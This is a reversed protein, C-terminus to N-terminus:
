NSFNRKFEDIIKIIKPKKQEEKVLNATLAFCPGSCESNQCKRISKCIYKNKNMYNAVFAKIYEYCQQRNDFMRYDKLESFLDSPTSGCFNVSKDAMIDIRSESCTHMIGLTRTDNKIKAMLTPSIQCYNVCCDYSIRNNSNEKNLISYLEKLSKDFNILKYVKDHCPTALAIRYSKVINSYKKGLRVLNEIYKIDINLNGVLTIGFTFNLNDTQNNLLHMNEEFLDFLEKRANTNVLWNMRLKILEELLETKCLLNSFFVTPYRLSTARCIRLCEPHLTAEGGLLGIRSSGRAWELIKLIEDFELMDPQAHYSNKQFCFDCNNNCASIISINTM